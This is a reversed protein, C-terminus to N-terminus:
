HKFKFNSYLIQRAEYFKKDIKLAEKEELIVRRKKQYLAKKDEFKKILRDVKRKVEDKSLKKSKLVNNKEREFQAWLKSSEKVWYSVIADKREIERKLETIKRSDTHVMVETITQEFGVQLIRDSIDPDVMEYYNSHRTDYWEYYGDIHKSIRFGRFFIVDEYPFERVSHPMEKIAVEYILQTIDKM